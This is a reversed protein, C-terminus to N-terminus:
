SAEADTKKIAAALAAIEGTTTEMGKKAVAVAAEADKFSTELAKKKDDSTDFEEEGLITEIFKIIRLQILGSGLLLQRCFAANIRAELERLHVHV